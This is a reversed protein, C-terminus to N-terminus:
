FLFVENMESMASETSGVGEGARMFDHMTSRFLFLSCPVEAKSYYKM